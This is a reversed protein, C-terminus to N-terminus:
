DYVGAGRYSGFALTNGDPSLMPMSGDPVIRNPADRELDLLWVGSQDADFSQALLRKEDSSLVPSHLATPTEITSLREGRRDFWALRRPNTGGGFALLNGTASLTASNRNTPPSVNGAITAPEGELRLREPDFRQAMLAGERVYM